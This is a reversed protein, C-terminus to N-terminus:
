GKPRYEAALFIAYPDDYPVRVFGTGEPGGFNREWAAALGTDDYGLVQTVGSPAVSWSDRWRAPLGWRSGVTTAHAGHRDFLASDHPTGTLISPTKWDLRLQGPPQTEPFIGPPLGRWVVKGGADLYRRLLSSAAATDTAIVSPPAYDIAFVVVSPARDAIRESFFTPLSSVDLTKYGRDILARSAATAGPTRAFKLAATDFFVARQVTPGNTTRLAYVNGDTSGVVVYEGSIAPSSYVTAATRFSWREKGTARDYAHVKGDGDGVYLLGGAIAPSSWVPADAATRWLERGTTDLAQVFHADSSGAYIVGDAFAVSTIIWSIKHDFRWRLTGHAADIAYLFGDRAGEYVVGNAVVPSSQISRRDYGYNGSQLTVGETDYRWRVAGTALDLCYIRGDFSGVYVRGDVVAPSARVRGATRTKWRLTGSSADVAYVYGDGAGVVIQGGVYTPSSLYYDGSEHGWAFPIVKGTTLRWRKVGRVADVGVVSGDRTSVFVMGGGVAPSSAVPSGLEIRWRRAGTALDLAYLAGDNSGVYVVQGVITPSSVVDGDTPARWALGALTAGGGSYTGTHSPGGRFMSTAGPVQTSEVADPARTEIVPRALAGLAIVAGAFLPYRLSASSSM